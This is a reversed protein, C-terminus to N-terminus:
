AARKKDREPGLRLRAGRRRAIHPLRAAPGKAPRLEHAGGGTPVLPAPDPDPAGAVMTARLMASIRM